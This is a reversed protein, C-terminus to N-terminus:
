WQVALGNRSGPGVDPANSWSDSSRTALVAATVAGGAVVVGVITWLWWKKYVPTDRRPAPASAVARAVPESAPSSTTVAPPATVAPLQKPENTDTPPSTKAKEAAAIAERLKTIQRRVDEANSENPYLQLYNKYLIVAKEPNNALRYSQAANYLLAPDAKLKYAAQYEIAAEAFEGVAFHSTAKEYHGRAESSRDAYASAAWVLSSVVVIWRFAKM